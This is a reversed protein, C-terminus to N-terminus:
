KGDVSHNQWNVQANNTARPQGTRAQPIPRRGGPTPLPCLGDPGTVPPKAGLWATRGQRVSEWSRDYFTRLSVAVNQPFRGNSRYDRVHDALTPRILEQAM